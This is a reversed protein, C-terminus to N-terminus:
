EDYFRTGPEVLPEVATPSPANPVSASAQKWFERWAEYTTMEEVAVEGHWVQRLALLAANEIRRDGAVLNAMLLPTAERMKLHGAAEAAAVQVEYTHDVLGRCLLRVSERDGIQALVRLAKARVGGDVNLAEQRLVPRAKEPNLLVLADLVPAVFRPTLGGVYHALYKFVDTRANMAVLAERADNAVRDEPSLMQQMLEQVRRREEATLGTLELMAAEREAARQRLAERDLTGARDNAEVSAVSDAPYRMQRGGVDLTVGTEDQKMVKGHVQVGSHLTVTDAGAAACCLALLVGGLATHTM